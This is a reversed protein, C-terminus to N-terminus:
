PRVFTLQAGDREMVVQDKNASVVKGLTLVDQGDILNFNGDQVAFKRKLTVPGIGAADVTVTADGTPELNVRLTNERGTEDVTVTEWLGMIPLLEPNVAPAPAAAAPVVAPAEASLAP